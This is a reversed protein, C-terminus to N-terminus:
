IFGRLRLADGFLGAQDPRCLRPDKGARFIRRAKDLEALLLAKKPPKILFGTAGETMCRALNDSTPYATCIIVPLRKLGKIARIEHLLNIGSKEPMAIDSLVAFYDHGHKNLEELAAEVSGTGNARPYGLAQIYACLIDRPADLDDVVLVSLKELADAPVPTYLSALLQKLETLALRGSCAVVGILVAEWPNEFEGDLKFLVAETLRHQKWVAEFLKISERQDFGDEILVADFQQIPIWEKAAALTSVTRLRFSLDAALKEIAAISELTSCVALVSPM